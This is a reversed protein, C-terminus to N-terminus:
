SQWKKHELYKRYWRFMFLVCFYLYIFVGVILMMIGKKNNYGDEDTFSFILYGGYPLLAYPSSKLFKKLYKKFDNNKNLYQFFGM